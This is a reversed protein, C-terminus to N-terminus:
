ALALPLWLASLIPSVKDYVGDPATSFEFQHQYMIKQTHAKLIM